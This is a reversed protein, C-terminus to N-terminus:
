KGPIILRRVAPSLPNASAVPTLLGDLAISLDSITQYRNDPNRQMCGIIIEDVRPDLNPVLDSPRVFTGRPLTRTFLKYLMLGVSFIDARADISSGSELQEPAVYDMTGMAQNEMTLNRKFLEEGLLRALGFDSVKVNGNIDLITNGPRIDRHIVGNAHACALAKCIQIGITVVEIFSFERSDILRELIDGEVYEMVLYLTSNTEGSDYIRVINPHILRAMRRAERNFGEILSADSGPDVLLVKIAVLRDLKTQSAKYYTGMGGHGIFSLIQLHPILIQLEEITPPQYDAGLSTFGTKGKPNHM